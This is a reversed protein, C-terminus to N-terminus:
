NEGIGALEAVMEAVPRGPPCAAVLGRISATLLLRVYEPRSPRPLMAHAPGLRDDRSLRQWVAARERELGDGDATEAAISNEESAAMAITLSAVASSLVIAADAAYGRRGLAEVEAALLRQGGDGRPFLVQLYGALGPHDLVFERLRMAFSVLHAETGHAPDDPLRLQALIDEGVLRELGWRGDVHRYLATATVGLRVAVAKVSLRRMGLERGAALIDPVAIRAPRGGASAAM